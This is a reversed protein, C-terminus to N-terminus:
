PFSEGVLLFCVLVAMVHIVMLRAGWRAINGKVNARGLVLGYIPFQLFAIAIFPAIISGFLVTSLMTFPFLIKALFYSGHGAGAAGAAAFLFLPTAVLSIILPITFERAKVLTLLIVIAKLQPARDADM